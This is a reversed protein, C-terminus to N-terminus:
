VEGKNPVSWMHQGVRTIYSFDAVSWRAVQEQGCCSAPAPAPYDDGAGVIIMPRNVVCSAVAAAGKWMAARATLSSYSLNVRLAPLSPEWQTSDLSGLGQAGMTGHWVQLLSSKIPSNFGPWPQTPWAEGMEDKERLHPLPPTPYPHNHMLAALNRGLASRLLLNLSRADLGKPYISLSRASNDDFASFLCDKWQWQQPRRWMLYLPGWSLPSQNSQLLVSKSSITINNMWNLLM